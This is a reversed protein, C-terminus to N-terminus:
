TIKENEGPNELFYRERWVVSRMDKAREIASRARNFGYETMNLERRISAPPLDDIYLMVVFTRMTRSSIGNIIREAAKLERVYSQVKEKHSESLESIAAFAADFGSPKGKGGPMGTIHATTGFMREYQWVIKKELSCVDQMIHPVRSLLIIDKNKVARTEQAGRRQDKM